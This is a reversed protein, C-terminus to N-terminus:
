KTDSKEQQKTTAEKKIPAVQVKAEIKDVGYIRGVEEILDEKISIDLRRRPVSVTIKEGNEETKFGLRRFIDLIEKEEIQAGLLKNINQCTIEIKRDAMDEKNYELTGKLPEGEAYEELLKVAREIAM